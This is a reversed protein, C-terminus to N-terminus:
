DPSSSLGGVGIFCNIEIKQDEDPRQEEGEALTEGDESAGREILLEMAVQERGEMPQIVKDGAELPDPHGGPVGDEDKQGRCDQSAEAPLGEGGPEFRAPDSDQGEGQEDDQEVGFGQGNRLLHLEQRDSAVDGRCVAPQLFLRPIERDHLQGLEVLDRVLRREHIKRQEVALPQDVAVASEDGVGGIVQPRHKAFEGGLAGHVDELFELHLVDDKVGLVGLAPGPRM